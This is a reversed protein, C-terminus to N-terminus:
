HACVIVILEGISRDDEQVTINVSHTGANPPVLRLYLLSKDADVEADCWDVSSIVKVRRANQTDIIRLPISEASQKGMSSILVMKGELLELSKAQRALLRVNTTENRSKWAVSLVAEIEGVVKNNALRVPVEWVDTVVQDDVVMEKRSPAGISFFGSHFESLIRLDDIEMPKDNIRRKHTFMCNKM